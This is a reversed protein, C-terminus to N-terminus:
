SWKVTGEQFATGCQTSPQLPNTLQLTVDESTRTHGHQCLYHGGQATFFHGAWCQQERHHSHHRHPGPICGLDAPPHLQLLDGSAVASDPGAECVQATSPVCIQKSFPRGLTYHFRTMRCTCSTAVVEANYLPWRSCGFFTQGLLM